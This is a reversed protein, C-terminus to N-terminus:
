APIADGSGQEPEALDQPTHEVSGRVSLRAFTEMVMVYERVRMPRSCVSQDRLPETSEPVAGLSTPKSGSLPHGM